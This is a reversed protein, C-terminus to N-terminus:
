IYKTYYNAEHEYLCNRLEAQLNMSVINCISHNATIRVKTNVVDEVITWLYNCVCNKTLFGVSDYIQDHISNGPM